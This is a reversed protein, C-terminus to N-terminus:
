GLPGSEGLADGGRRRAAILDAVIRASEHAGDLRVTVTPRRDAAADVADALRAPTLEAAAVVQALGRGALIKARNTQEDEVGGAFPVLVAPAAAVLLDVVTNYGAQSISVACRALLSRFDARSPEVIVGPGARRRWAELDRAPAETGILFRWPADALRSLPRAALAAEILEQGVRGGGVSVIVEGHGDAGRASPSGAAIYGTYCLRDAIRPAEPFSADLPILTPDGHVLVADFHRRVREAVQRHREPNPKTVLVDRVSSVVAPRPRDRHAADILPDLEFRFARRGFPYMEIIVGDPRTARYAALLRDRRAAKWAEDIPRGAADVLTAFTSDTARCPPLQVFRAAELGLDEVPFGGSVYTVEVGREILAHTLAAARKQHGIGLLHQVHILVRDPM